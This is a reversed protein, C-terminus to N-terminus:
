ARDAALGLAVTAVLRLRRRETLALVAFIGALAGLWSARTQTVALGIVIEARVARSLSSFRSSFCTMPSEFGSLENM